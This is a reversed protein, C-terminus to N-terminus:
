SSSIAIIHAMLRGCAAKHTHCHTHISYNVSVYECSESDCPQILQRNDCKATTNMRM